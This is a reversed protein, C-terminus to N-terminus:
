ETAVTVNFTLRGTCIWVLVNSITQPCIRMAKSHQKAISSQLVFSLEDEEAIM